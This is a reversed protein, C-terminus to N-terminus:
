LVVRHSQNDGEVTHTRSSLGLPTVLSCLVWIVQAMKSIKKFFSSLILHWINLYFYISIFGALAPMVAYLKIGASVLCLRDLDALAVCTFCHKKEFCVFCYVKSFESLFYTCECEQVM